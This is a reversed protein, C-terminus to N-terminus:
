RANRRLVGEGGKRMDLLLGDFGDKRVRVIKERRAIEEEFAAAKRRKHQRAEKMRGVLDSYRETLWEGCGEWQELPLSSFFQRQQDRPLSSIYKLQGTLPATLQQQPLVSPSPNPNHDFSQAHLESYQMKALIAPDYDLKVEPNKRNANSTDRRHSRGNPLHSARQRRADEASSDSLEFVENGSTYGNGRSKQTKAPSQPQKRTISLNRVHRDTQKQSVSRARQHIPLAKQKSPNPPPNMQQNNLWSHSRDIHQPELGSQVHPQHQQSADTQTDTYQTGELEDEDELTTNPYSDSEYDQNYAQPGRQRYSLQQTMRGNTNRASKYRGDANQGQSLGRRQDPEPSGDMYDDDDDDDHVSPDQFTQQAGVLQQQMAAANLTPDGEIDALDDGDDADDSGSGAEEGQNEEYAAEAPSEQDVGNASGHESKIEPDHACGNDEQPLEEGNHLEQQSDGVQVDSTTDDLGEYDTDWGNGRGSNIGNHAESHEQEGRLTGQQREPSHSGLNGIELSPNRQGQENPVQQLRTQTIPIRAREALKQRNANAPNALPAASQPIYNSPSQRKSVFSHLGTM